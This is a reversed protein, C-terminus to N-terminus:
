VGIAMKLWKISCVTLKERFRVEFCLNIFTFCQFKWINCYKYKSICNGGRFNFIYGITCNFWRLSLSLMNYECSFALKSCSNCFEWRAHTPTLARHIRVNNLSIVVKITRGRASFNIVIVHNYIALQLWRCKFWHRRNHLSIRAAYYVRSENSAAHTSFGRACRARISIEYIAHAAAVAAACKLWHPLTRKTRPQAIIEYIPTEIAHFDSSNSKYNQTCSACYM